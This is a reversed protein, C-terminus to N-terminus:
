LPKVRKLKKLYLLLPVTVLVVLLVVYYVNSDKKVIGGMQGYAVMSAWVAPDASLEDANELYELKAEALAEDISLGRLIHKYFNGILKISAQDNLKWLTMLINESGAYAFASAMSMMGEGKYSPGIGSECASLVVLRAKLKLGYLEYAHLENDELSDPIPKFYLSSNNFRSDSSRGHVALHIVNFNGALRKFNVETAEDGKLFKGSFNDALVKLEQEAGYLNQFENGSNNGSFSMALLTLDQDNKRDNNVFLGFSYSYGITYRNILYDLDRYNINNGQYPESLLLEFPLQSILGDPVIIMKKKDKLLENFPFILTRFVKHSYRTFTAFREQGSRGHESRFHRLVMKIATSLSDSAGIRKFSIADATMCLGYVSENGFFYELVVQDERLRTQAEPLTSHPYHYKLKHYGPYLEEIKYKYRQIKRDIEVFESRLKNVKGVNQPVADSEQNLEDQIRFLEKTLNNLASVISDEINIKGSREAEVLADSISRSKSRELFWFLQDYVSDSPNAILMEQLTAILQEYIDYNADLFKWKADELDLLNRELSILKEALTLSNLARVLYNPNKKIKYLSQFLSAKRSLVRHVYYNAGIQAESPNEGKFFNVAAALAKQYYFFASDPNGTVSFYDGLGTYADTVQMGTHRNFKKLSAVLEHFTLFCKDYSRNLLLTQALQYLFNLYLNQDYRDISSYIKRAEYFNSLAEEYLSDNRLAEALSVRHWALKEKALDTQLNLKQNLEIARLYFTRAMESEGMDRYINGVIAYTRELFDPDKIKSVFEIAKIGYAIAKEYDNQSRNTTALNYHIRALDRTDQYGISEFIQLAKEYCREAESFDNKSYKYIDGEAHYCKALAASKEGHYKLLIRKASKLHLLPTDIEHTLNGYFFGIHYHWESKTSDGPLDKLFPISRRFHNLVRIRQSLNLNRVLSGSKNLSKIYLNYDGGALSLEAAKELFQLAVSADTDSIKEGRQYYSLAESPKQSQATSYYFLWFLALVFLRKIINNMVGQIYPHSVCM